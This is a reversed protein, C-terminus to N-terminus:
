KIILAWNVAKEKKLFSRWGKPSTTLAQPNSAWSRIFDQLPVKDMGLTSGAFKVTSSKFNIQDVILFHGISNHTDATVRYRGNEKRVRILVIAVGGQRMHKILRRTSYHNGYEVTYPNGLEHNIANISNVMGAKSIGYSTFGYGVAVDRLRSYEINAGLAHLAAFLAV